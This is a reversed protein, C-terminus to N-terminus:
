GGAVVRTRLIGIGEIELEVVDGSQIWRDLELGCGGGVTGTGFLEGPCLTEGMSAHSVLQGVTFHATGANGESWVEGNVRAVMRLDRPDIEDATAISPGISTAFDKGKAPGLRCAMEERQIDRASWDNLVTYGFVHTAGDSAPIDRGGRGLVIGLELEYDLRRTFAPWVLDDEPGLISLPNGKYYVPMRYWAEPVPEGRLEWGKRVHAEFTWFDRFSRPRPLPALLRTGAAGRRYALREENPGRADHGLKAVFDLARRSADLAIEGMEIFALMDPPATVAALRGPQAVGRDALEAAVAATLDVIVDDPQLAGVREVCGVPTAVRFTVLKV